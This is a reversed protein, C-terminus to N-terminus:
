ADAFSQQPQPELLAQPLLIAVSAVDSFTIDQFLTHMNVLISFSPHATFFYVQKNRTNLM